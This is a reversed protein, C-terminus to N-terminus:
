GNDFISINSSAMKLLESAKAARLEASISTEMFDALKGLFVHNTIQLM